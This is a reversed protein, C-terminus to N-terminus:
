GASFASAQYRCYLRLQRKKKFGKETIILPLWAHTSDLYRYHQLQKKLKDYQAFNYQPSFLGATSDKLLSDALYPLNLKKRPLLWELKLTENEPIGKWVKDAYYFYASTLLIEADANEGKGSSTDNLMSDLREKYPYEADVGEERINILHNYLNSAQETIGSADFWAYINKRITYFERVDNEYQNLDSFRAFFSNLNSSDLKFERQDSFYGHVSVDKTRITDTVPQIKESPKQNCSAFAVPIIVMCCLCYVRYFNNIM